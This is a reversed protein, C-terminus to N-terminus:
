SYKLTPMPCTVRVCLYVCTVSVCLYVCTVSVCLYVCTVSVCGQTDMNVVKIVLCPPSLMAPGFESGECEFQGEM